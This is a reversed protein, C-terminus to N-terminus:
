EHGRLINLLSLSNEASKIKDLTSFCSGTSSRNIIYDGEYDSERIFEYINVTVKYKDSLPKTLITDPLYQSGTSWENIANERTFSINHNIWTKKSVIFIIVRYLGKNVGLLAKFYERFNFKTLPDLELHWRGEEDTKCSGDPNIQEIKTIIAYGDKFLYYSYDYGCQNMSHRLFKDLDKIYKEPINDIFDEIFFVHSSTPVPLIQLVPIDETEIESTISDTVTSCSFQLLISIVTVKIILKKM